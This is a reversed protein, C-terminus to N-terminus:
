SFSRFQFDNEQLIFLKDAIEKAGVEVAYSLFSRGQEDTHSLSSGHSVQILTILKEASLIDNQSIATQLAQELYHRSEM